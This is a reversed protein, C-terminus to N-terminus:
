RKAAPLQAVSAPPAQCLHADVQFPENFQFIEGDPMAADAALENIFDEKVQVRRFGDGM